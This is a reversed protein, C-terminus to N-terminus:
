LLREKFPALMDAPTLLIASNGEAWWQVKQEFGSKSFLIHQANPVLLSGLAQSHSLYRTLDEWDFRQNRWKAEGVLAVKENEDLGVVDLEHDSIWWTGVRGVRVPLGGAGSAMRVWDRCMAEFPPGMYDSLDSVIMDTVRESDGFEIYGQNPEIFRFWFQFFNDTLRYQTYYPKKADKETVPLLRQVLGMDGILPNMVRDLNNTSIGTAKAIDAWRHNRQAIARLVAIAQETNFSLHHSAFVAQPEVYLRASATAIAELINEKITLSPRFYALYLPVGGLIGYATLADVPDQFALLEAASRFDLPNVRIRRTVCGALPAEGTLLREMMQVASGCMVVMIDLKRGVSDWWNQLLSPLSEDRSVWYPIEDLILLLRQRRALREILAFATPWTTPPNAKLLDDDSLEALAAGFLPLQAQTPLLRCRYYVVSQKGEAFYELLTTKGVRRRGVVPVFQPQTSQWFRELDNLERVRNVFTM